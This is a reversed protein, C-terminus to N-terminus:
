RVGTSSLPVSKVLGRQQASMLASVYPDIATSNGEAALQALYPAAQEPSTLVYGPRGLMKSADRDTPSIRLTGNPGFGSLGENGPAYTSSAAATPTAAAQQAAAPASSMPQPAVQGGQPVPLVNASQLTLPAQPVIPRVSAYRRPRRNIVLAM